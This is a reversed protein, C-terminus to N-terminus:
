TEMQVVRDSSRRSHSSVPVAIIRVMGEGVLILKAHRKRITQTKLIATLTTPSPPVIEDVEESSYGHLKM